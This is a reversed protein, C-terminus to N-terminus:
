IWANGHSVCLCGCVVHAICEQREEHENSCRTMDALSDHIGLAQCDTTGQGGEEPASQMASTGVM